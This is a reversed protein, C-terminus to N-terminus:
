ASGGCRRCWCPVNLTKKVEIILLEDGKVAAIDCDKVESRVTYGLRALHGYLPRALDAESCGDRM